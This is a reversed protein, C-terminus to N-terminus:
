SLQNGTCTRGLWTEYVYWRCRRAATWWSGDYWQIFWQVGCRWEWSRGLGQVTVCVCVCVDSVLTLLQSVSVAAQRM